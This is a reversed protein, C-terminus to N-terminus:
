ARGNSRPPVVCPATSTRTLRSGISAVQTSAAKRASLSFGSTTSACPTTTIDDTGAHFRRDSGMSVSGSRANGCPASSTRMRGAAASSQSEKAWRDLLSFQQPGGSDTIFAIVEDQFYAL